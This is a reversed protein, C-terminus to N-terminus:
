MNAYKNHWLLNLSHILISGKVINVVGRYGGKM